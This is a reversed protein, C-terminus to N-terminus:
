SCCTTFEVNKDLSEIGTAVNRDDVKTTVRVKSGVKVDTSKCADGDCTVKADSALTHSFEKGEKNAMVLKNGIMSVVKGEFTNANAQEPNITATKTSMKNDDTKM